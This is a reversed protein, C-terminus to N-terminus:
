QNEVTRKDHVGSVWFGGTLYCVRRPQDRLIVPVRGRDPHITISNVDRERVFISDASWGDKLAEPLVKKLEWPDGFLGGSM